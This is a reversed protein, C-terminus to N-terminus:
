CGMEVKFPGLHLMAGASQTRNAVLEGDTRPMKVIGVTNIAAFTLYLTQKGKQERVPAPPRGKSLADTIWQLTLVFGCDNDTLLIALAFINEYLLDTGAIVPALCKFVVPHLPDAM